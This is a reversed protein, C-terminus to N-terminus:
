PNSSNRHSSVFYKAQHLDGAGQIVNGGLRAGPKNRLLDQDPTVRFLAHKAFRSQYSVVSVWKDTPSLSQYSLELSESLILESPNFTKCQCNCQVKERLRVIVNNRQWPDQGAFEVWAIAVVMARRTARSYTCALLPAGSNEHRHVM